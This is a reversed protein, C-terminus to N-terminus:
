SDKLDGPNEIHQKKSKRQEEEGMEKIFELYDREVEELEYEM